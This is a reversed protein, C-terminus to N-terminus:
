SRFGSGFPIVTIKQKLRGFAECGLARDVNKVVVLERLSSAWLWKGNGNTITQLAGSAFVLELV